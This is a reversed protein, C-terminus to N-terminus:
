NSTVEHQVTSITYYSKSHTVTKISKLVYNIDMNRQKKSLLKNVHASHSFKKGCSVLLTELDEETRKQPLHQKAQLLSTEM